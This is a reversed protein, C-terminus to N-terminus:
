FLEFAKVFKKILRSLGKDIRKVGCHPCFENDINNIYGTVPSTIICKKAKEKLKKIDGGQNKIWEYFKNKAHGNQVLNVALEKAKKFSIRKATSIM